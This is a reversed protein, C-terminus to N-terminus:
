DSTEVAVAETAQTELWLIPEARGPNEPSVVPNLTKRKVEWGKRM